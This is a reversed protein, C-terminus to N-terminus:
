LNFKRAQITPIIDEKKILNSSRGKRKEEYESENDYIDSSEFDIPLNELLFKGDLQAYVGLYIDKKNLIYIDYKINQKDLKKLDNFVDDIKHYKGEGSYLKYYIHIRENNENFKLVKM